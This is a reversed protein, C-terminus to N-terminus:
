RCYRSRRSTPARRSSRAIGPVDREDAVVVDRDDAAEPRRHCRHAHREVLDGGGREVQEVEAGVPSCSRILTAAGVSMGRRDVATGCWRYAAYAAQM